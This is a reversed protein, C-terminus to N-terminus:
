DRKGLFEEFYLSSTFSCQILCKCLYFWGYLCAFMVYRYMRVHFGFCFCKFISKFDNLFWFKSFLRWIPVHTNLIAYVHVLSLFGYCTTRNLTRSSVFVCLVLVDPSAVVFILLACVFRDISRSLRDLDCWVSDGVLPCCCYLLACLVAVLVALVTCLYAYTCSILLVLLLLSFLFFCRLQVTSSSRM